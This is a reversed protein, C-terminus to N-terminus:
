AKDLSANKEPFFALRIFEKMNVVHALLGLKVALGNFHQGLPLWLVTVHSSSVREVLELVM